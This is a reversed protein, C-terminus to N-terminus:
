DTIELGLNRRAFRPNLVMIECGTTKYLNQFLTSKRIADTTIPLWEDKATKIILVLNIKNTLTEIEHIKEHKVYGEYTKIGITLGVTAHLAANFKEFLEQIYDTQDTGSHTSFNPSSKKAEVVILSASSRKWIFDVMKVGQWRTYWDEKEPLLIDEEEFSFQMESEQYQKITM